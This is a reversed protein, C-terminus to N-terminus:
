SFKIGIKDLKNIDFIYSIDKISSIKLKLPGAEKRKVFFRFERQYKFNDPKYFIDLPGSYKKLNYYRVLGYEYEFKLEKLKDEIRNIFDKVETIVVFCDGFRKNKEDIQFSVPNELSTIAM